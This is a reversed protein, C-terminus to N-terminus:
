VAEAVVDAEGVLARTSGNLCGLENPISQAVETDRPKALAELMGSNTFGVPTETSIEASFSRRQALVPSPVRAVRSENAVCRILSQEIWWVGCTSFRCLNEANSLRSRAELAHRVALRAFCDRGVLVEDELGELIRLLLPLAIEADLVRATLESRATESAFEVAARDLSKDLLGDLQELSEMEGWLRKQDELDLPSLHAIEYLAPDLAHGSLDSASLETKMVARRETMVAM